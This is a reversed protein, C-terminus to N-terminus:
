FADRQRSHDRYMKAFYLNTEAIESVPKALLAATERRIRWHGAWSRMQARYWRQEETARHEPAVRALFPTLPGSYRPPCSVTIKM